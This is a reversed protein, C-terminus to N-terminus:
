MKTTRRTNSWSTNVASQTGLLKDSLDSPLHVRIFYMVEEQCVQCGSNHFSLGDYFSPVTKEFNSRSSNLVHYQILVKTERGKNGM